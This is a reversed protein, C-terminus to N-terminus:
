QLLLSQAEQRHIEEPAASNSPSLMPDVEAEPGATQQQQM